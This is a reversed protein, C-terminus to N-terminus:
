PITVKPEVYQNFTPSDPDTDVTLPSEAGDVQVRALYHGPVVGTIAFTISATADADDEIGNDPPAEFRYARVARDSPPNFENLLLVV